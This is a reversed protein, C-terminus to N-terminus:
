CKPLPRLTAEINDGVKLDKVTEQSAEFEHTAGGKDRISIRGGTRDMAIITGDVKHPAGAPQCQRQQSSQQAAVGTACLGVLTFAAIASTLANM